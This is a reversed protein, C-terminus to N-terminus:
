ETGRESYTAFVGSNRNIYGNLVLYALLTTAKYETMKGHRALASATCGPHERVYELARSASILKGFRPNYCCGNLEVDWVYAIPPYSTLFENDEGTHGQGRAYKKAIALKDFEYLVKDTDWERVQFRKTM